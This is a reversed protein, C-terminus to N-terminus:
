ITYGGYVMASPFMGQVTWYFFFLKPNGRIKNFRSDQGAKLVRFLLFSGLRAAWTVVLGSQIVQRPFFKGGRILSYAALIIYTLSGVADYFKETKLYAALLFSVWQVSFDILAARGIANDMEIFNVANLVLLITKYNHMDIFVSLQVSQM